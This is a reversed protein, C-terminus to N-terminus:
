TFVVLYVIKEKKGSVMKWCSLFTIWAKKMKLPNRYVIGEILVFLGSAERTGTAQVILMPIIKSSIASM